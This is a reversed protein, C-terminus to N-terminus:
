VLSVRIYMGSGEIVYAFSTIVGFEFKERMDYGPVNLLTRGTLQKQDVQMTAVNTLVASSRPALSFLRVELNSLTTNLQVCWNVLRNARYIIGDEHLRCFTEIVANSLRQTQLMLDFLAVMSSSSSSSVCRTWQLLRAVGTMAAVLDICSIQLEHKTAIAWETRTLFYLLHAYEDKWKSVTEVFKERGLDHRTKKEAKYLRKEVVSQTSIGAHDFGPAFLTTNGLMRNRFWLAVDM